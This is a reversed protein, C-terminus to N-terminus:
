PGGGGGSTDTLDLTGGNQGTVSSTTGTGCVNTANVLITVTEVTCPSGTLTIIYDSGSQAGSQSFCSPVNTIEAFTANLVTLTGTYSSYRDASNPSLTGVVSAPCTTAPSVVVAGAALGSATSTTLGGGCANTASVQLATTGASSPTGTVTIVYGTGSQSGSQTLGAPLNTVSASTAHAVTITGNYVSGVTATAPSIDGTVPTPCFVPASVVLAGISAGTISSSTLGGGCANTADVLLSTTTAATPTGTVTIVYNSGSAAGSQTLGAPLNTITATTANTITVTGTYSEGSIGTLPSLTGASPTTCSQSVVLTGGPQGTVSSTTSGSGCANNADVLLATSAATTPTGTVTIVYNAGSAAGSQSLGAPLNTIMAATANGVVLTGSYSAGTSGILPTLTGVSPTTCTPAGVTGSGAGGTKTTTTLGGGCANTASVQINYSEGQVTPTGQLTIILDNGSVTTSAVTVGTPLGTVTAYTANTVTITGTVPVNVTFDSM